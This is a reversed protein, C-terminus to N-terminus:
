VPTVQSIRQQEVGGCCPHPSGSWSGAARGRGRTNGLLLLVHSLAWSLFRPHPVLLPVSMKPNKFRFSLDLSTLFNFLSLILDSDILLFIHSVLGGLMKCVIKCWPFLFFFVGIWWLATWINAVLSKHFYKLQFWKKKKLFLCFCFVFVFGLFRKMMEKEVYNASRSEFLSLLIGCLM